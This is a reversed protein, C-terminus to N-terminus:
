NLSDWEAAERKKAMAYGIECGLFLGMVMCLGGALIAVILWEM